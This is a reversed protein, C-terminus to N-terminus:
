VCILLLKIHVSSRNRQEYSEGEHHSAVSKRHKRGSFHPELNHQKKHAPDHYRGEDIGRGLNFFLNLRISARQLGLDVAEHKQEM